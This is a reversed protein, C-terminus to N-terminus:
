ASRPKAPSTASVPPGRILRPPRNSRLGPIPWPLTWSLWTLTVTPGARFLAMRQIGVVATRALRPIGATKVYKAWDHFNATQNFVSPAPFDAAFSTFFLSHVRDFIAMGGVQNTSADFFRVTLYPQDDQLTYSSMWASFTYQGSGADINAASVGNTLDVTQTLANTYATHPFEGDQNWSYVLGPNESAPIVPGSFYNYGYSIGSIVGDWGALTGDTISNYSNPTGGTIAEFSGNLILDVANAAGVFSLGGALISLGIKSRTKMTM